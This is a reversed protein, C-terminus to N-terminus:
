RLNALWGEVEEDGLARAEEWAQEARADEGWAYALQGLRRWDDREGTLEALALWAGLAQDVDRAQYWAQALRRLTTEDRALRESALAQELHEAARAPTGGALHLAVLTEFDEDSEFIGLQWAMEWLAAAMGAQGAQQALGAAQRWQDRPSEEGLDRLLWDLAGAGDGAERMVSLALAQQGETLGGQEVLPALRDAATEWQEEDALMRVLQWSMEIDDHDALWEDFLAIAESRQGAARRLRAEERLWRDAQEADVGSRERARALRDAAAGPEGQRALAGAALQDYLASAWQDSRNGGALRDAQRIAREAVGELAERGDGAGALEGQLANLNQIIDGPLPADAQALAAWGSFVLLALRKM